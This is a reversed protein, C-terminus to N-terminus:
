VGAALAAAGAALRQEAARRAPSEWLGRPVLHVASRLSRGAVGAVLDTGPHATLWGTLGFRARAWRPLMGFAISALGVWAPRAPLPMPPTLLLRMAERAAATTRLQPRVAEFYERLEGTSAPVDASTLGVLAAARVQEAVYGDVAGPGLPAGCRRHAALLSDVECCHVWLLLAPDDVRYRRGSEPEVGRLRRHVGRVRAAAHHAQATTGYTVVAIYDATRFLRGWPDDRFDSHEAVGAMALPHLTQLMLARLGGLAVAPDAHLQWTVSAPGFLGPDPDVAGAHCAAM